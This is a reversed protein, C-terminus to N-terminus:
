SNAAARVKVDPDWIHAEIYSGAWMGRRRADAIREYFHYIEAAEPLDAYTFLLDHFREYCYPFEPQLLGKSWVFHFHDPYMFTIHEPSFLSISIQISRGNRYMTLTRDFAGLIAFYPRIKPKSRFKEKYKEILLDDAARRIGFFDSGLAFRNFATDADKEAEIVTEIEQDSLDCINRFPGKDAEFYHTVFTPLTNM